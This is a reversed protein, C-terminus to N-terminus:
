PDEKPRKQLFKAKGGNPGHPDLPNQREEEVVEVDGPVTSAM